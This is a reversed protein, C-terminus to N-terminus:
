ASAEREQQRIAAWAALWAALAQGRGYTTQATHTSRRGTPQGRWARRRAKRWVRTTEAPTM